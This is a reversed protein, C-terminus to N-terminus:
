DPEPAEARQLELDGLAITLLSLATALGFFLAARFIGGGLMALSSLFSAVVLLGLAFRLELMRQQLANGKESPNNSWQSLQISTWCLCAILPILVVDVDPARVIRLSKGIVFVLQGAALTRFAFTTRGTVHIRNKDDFSGVLAFLGAITLGISSLTYFQLNTESLGVVLVAISVVFISTRISSLRSERIRRLPSPVWSRLYFARGVLDLDHQQELTEAFSNLEIADAQSTRAAITRCKRSARYGWGESAGLAARLVCSVDISIAVRGRASANWQTFMNALAETFSASHIENPEDDDESRALTTLCDIADRGRDRFAAAISSLGQRLLRVLARVASGKVILWFIAPTVILLEALFGYM